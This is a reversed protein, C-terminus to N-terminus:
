RDFEMVIHDPHIMNYTLAVLRAKLDSVQADLTAAIDLRDGTACLQPKKNCLAPQSPYM